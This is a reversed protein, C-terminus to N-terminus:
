IPMRPKSPVKPASEATIQQQALSMAGQVDSLQAVAMSDAGRYHEALLQVARVLIKTSELYSQLGKAATDVAEHYRQRFASEPVSASQRAIAQGHWHDSIIETSYPQLNQDIEAQLYAVFDGMAGIDVTLRGFAIVPPGVTEGPEHM